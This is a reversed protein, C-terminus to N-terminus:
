PPEQIPVRYTRKGGKVELSPLANGAADKPQRDLQTKFDDQCFARHIIPATRMKSPYSLGQHMAQNFYDEPTIDPEAIIEELGLYPCLADVRAVLRAEEDPAVRVDYHKGGVALDILRSRYSMSTLPPVATDQTPYKVEPNPYAHYPFIPGAISTEPLDAVTKANKGFVLTVYPWSLLIGPETRHTLDIEAETKEAGHCRVCHKDLIPQVLSSGAARQTTPDPSV